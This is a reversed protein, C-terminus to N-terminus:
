RKWFVLAKVVTGFHRVAKSSLLNNKLRLMRLSWIIGYLLSSQVHLDLYGLPDASASQKTSEPLMVRGIIKSKTQKRKDALCTWYTWIINIGCSWRRPFVGEKSM